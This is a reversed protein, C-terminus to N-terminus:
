QDFRDPLHVRAEALDRRAIEGIVDFYAIAVLEPREGRVQVTHAVLEGPQVPLDLDGVAVFRLEEGVHRVFQPRREIRYHAEGFYQDLLHEALYVCLLEFVQM